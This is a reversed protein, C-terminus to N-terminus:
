FLRARASRNPFARQYRPAELDSKGIYHSEGSEHRQCSHMRAQKRNSYAVTGLLCGPHFSGFISPKNDDDPLRRPATSMGRHFSPHLHWTLFGPDMIPHDQSRIAATKPVRSLDNASRDFMSHMRNSIDITIHTGKGLFM